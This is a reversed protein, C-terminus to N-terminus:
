PQRGDACRDYTDLVRKWLDPDSDAISLYHEADFILVTVRSETKGSLLQRAPSRTIEVSLRGRTQKEFIGGLKRADAIRVNESPLNAAKGIRIIGHDGTTVPRRESRILRITDGFELQLQYGAPIPLKGGFIQIFPGRCASDEAPASAASASSTWFFVTYLLLAVSGMLKVIV